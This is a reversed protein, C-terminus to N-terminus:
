AQANFILGTLGEVYQAFKLAEESPIQRIVEDTQSDIVRIVMEGAEDDVQFTLLQGKGSLMENLKDVAASLAEPDLAQSDQEQTERQSGPLGIRNMEAERSRALAGSQQSRESSSVPRETFAQTRAAGREGSPTFSTTQSSSTGPSLGSPPLLEAAM